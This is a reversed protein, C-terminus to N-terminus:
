QIEPLYSIRSNMKPREGKPVIVIIRTALTQGNRIAYGAQVSMMRYKEKITEDPMKVNTFWPKANVTGKKATLRKGTANTCNFEALMVEDNNNNSGSNTPRFPILKLCGSKNTVYLNIEYRFYDEGKVEKSVENTVYFGYELGNYSYPINEELNIVQQSFIPFIFCQTMLVSIFKKM